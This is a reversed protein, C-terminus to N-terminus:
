LHCAFSSFSCHVYTIARKVEEDAECVWLKMGAASKIELFQGDLKVAERIRSSTARFARLDKTAKRKLPSRSANWFPKWSPLPPYTEPNLLSGIMILHEDPLDLLSPM